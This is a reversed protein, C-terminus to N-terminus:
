EDNPVYVNFGVWMDGSKMNAPDPIINFTIAMWEDPRLHSYLNDFLSMNNAELVVEHPESM